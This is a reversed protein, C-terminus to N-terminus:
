ESLTLNKFADLAEELATLADYREESFGYLEHVAEDLASTLSERDKESLTADGEIRTSFDELEGWASELDGGINEVLDHIDRLSMTYNVSEHDYPNEHWKTASDTSYDFDTYDDSVYDSHTYSKDETGDFGTNTITITIKKM